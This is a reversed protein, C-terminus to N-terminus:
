PLFFAVWGAVAAAIAFGLTHPYSGTTLGIVISTFALVCYAIWLKQKLSM